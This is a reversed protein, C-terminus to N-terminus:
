LVQNIGYHCFQDVKGPGLLGRVSVQPDNSGGEKAQELHM